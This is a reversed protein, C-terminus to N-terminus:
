VDFHHFFFNFNAKIHKQTVEPSHLMVWDGSTLVVQTPDYVKTKYDQELSWRANGSGQPWQARTSRSWSTPWRRRTLCGDLVAHHFIRPEQATGLFLWCTSVKELVQKKLGGARLLVAISGLHEESRM